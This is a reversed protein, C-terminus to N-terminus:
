EREPGGLAGSYRIVTLRSGSPTALPWRWAVAAGPCVISAAAGRPVKVSAGPASGTASTDAPTPTVGTSAM